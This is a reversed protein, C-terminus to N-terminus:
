TQGCICWSNEHFRTSAPSTLWNSNAELMDIFSDFDKKRRIVKGKLTDYRKELRM